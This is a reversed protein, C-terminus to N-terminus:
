YYAHNSKIDSFMNKIWRCCCCIPLSFIDYIPKDMVETSHPDSFCMLSNYLKYSEIDVYEVLPTKFRLRRKNNLKEMAESDENNFKIQKDEKKMKPEVKKKKMKGTRNSKHSKNKSQNKINTLDSNSANNNNTIYNNQILGINPIRQQSVTNNSQFNLRNNSINDNNNLPTSQLISDDDNNNSIINLDENDINDINNDSIDEKPIKNELAKKKSSKISKNNNSNKKSDKESILVNPQNNSISYKKSFIELKHNNTIETELVKKDAISHTDQYKIKTNKIYELDEMEKSSEKTIANSKRKEPLIM